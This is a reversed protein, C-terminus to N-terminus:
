GGYLHHINGDPDKFWALAVGGAVHVDGERTLGPMDYHEFVVGRAALAKVIDRCQAGVSWTVSTAQNAGAYQSAYVLLEGGGARYTSVGEEPTEVRELGLVGEYFAAAAEVDRVAVTAM